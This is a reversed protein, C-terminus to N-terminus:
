YSAPVARNIIGSPSELVDGFSLSTPDVVIDPEAAEAADYQEETTENIKYENCGVSMLCVLVMMTGRHM